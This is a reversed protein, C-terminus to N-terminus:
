AASSAFIAILRKLRIVNSIIREMHKSAWQSITLTMPMTTSEMMAELKVLCLPGPGIGTYLERESGCTMIFLFLLVWLLVMDTVMGVLLHKLSITVERDM